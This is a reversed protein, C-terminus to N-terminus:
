GARRYHRVTLAIVLGVFFLHSALDGIVMIPEPPASRPPMASLPLVVRNMFLYIASGYALGGILAQRALLTFRGSALWYLASAVALIAYHSAVGLVSVAVGGDFAARGLWGSAISQFIRVPMVGKALWWATCAYALDLTAAVLGAILIARGANTSADRPM